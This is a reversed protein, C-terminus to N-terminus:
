AEEIHCRSLGTRPNVPGRDGLIVAPSKDLALHALNALECQPFQRVGLTPEPPRVVVSRVSTDVAATTQHRTCNFNLVVM